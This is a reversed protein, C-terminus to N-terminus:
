CGEECIADIDYSKLEAVVEEGSLRKAQEAKSWEAGSKLPKLQGWRKALLARALAEIVLWHDAVLQQCRQELKKQVEGFVRGALYEESFGGHLQRAEFWDSSGIIREYELVRYGQSQRFRNEAYCGAFTALITAERSADSGDPQKCYCALGEADKGVIIGESRLSRGLVAAIVAHAAEHHAAITIKDDINETKVAAQEAAM